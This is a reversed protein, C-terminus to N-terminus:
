IIGLAKGAAKFGMIAADLDERSHAASVMVRLRAQGKPVVPYAISQAFVGNEFLEASLKQAKEEDYTMVPIIPTQTTRTDYGLARIKELFYERNDWLKRVLEDSEELLDIAAIAASAMCVQEPTATFIFTRAQKNVRDILEASGAVFGGACGFGKSLSGTEVYVGDRVGFHDVTGRGHPGMVGDGHADDIMVKANYKKGLEVIEPVPALDGDMSFVADTVILKNEAESEKLMEELATMDMHPFAHVNAKSLRIGDIISAHNLEDSFVDDDKGIILPIVGLNATLGSNFISVAPVGKFAALKEELEEHPRFNGVIGRAAGAGLGYEDLAAKAAGVVAPHNALGLYNNAAMNIMERGDLIIRGGQPGTIVKFDSM